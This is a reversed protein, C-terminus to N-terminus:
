RGAVWREDIFSQVRARADRLTAFREGFSPWEDLSAYVYWLGQADLRTFTWFQDKSKWLGPCVITLPGLATLEPHADIISLCDCDHCCLPPFHGDCGEVACDSDHQHVYCGCSTCVHEETMTTVGPDAPGM